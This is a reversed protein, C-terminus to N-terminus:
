LEGARRLVEKAREVENQKWLEQKNLEALLAREARVIEDNTADRWGVVTVKAYTSDGYYGGDTDVDVQVNSLGEAADKLSKIAYELSGDIDVDKSVSVQMNRGEKDYRGSFGDGKFTGTSPVAVKVNRKDRLTLTTKM